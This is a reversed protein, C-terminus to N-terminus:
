LADVLKGGVALGEGPHHIVQLLGVADDAGRVALGQVHGVDGPLLREGVVDLGVPRELVLPQEALHAGVPHGDVLLAVNVQRALAHGDEVLRALLDLLDVDRLRPRRVDADAALVPLGEEDRRALAKVGELHADGAYPALSLGPGTGIRITPFLWVLGFRSRPCGSALSLPPGGESARKSTASFPQADITAPDLPD